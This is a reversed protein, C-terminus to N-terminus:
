PLAQGEQLVPLIDEVLYSNNSDKGAVGAATKKVGKFPLARIEYEECRWTQPINEKEEKRSLHQNETEM